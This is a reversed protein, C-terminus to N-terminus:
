QLDGPLASYDRVNAPIMKIVETVDHRLIITFNKNPYHSLSINKNCFIYNWLKTELKKECVVIM